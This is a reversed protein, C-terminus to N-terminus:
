REVAPPEMDNRNYLTGGETEGNIPFSCFLHTQQLQELHFSVLAYIPECSGQVTNPAPNADLPSPIDYSPYTKFRIKIYQIHIVKFIALQDLLFFTWHLSRSFAHKLSRKPRSPFPFQSHPLSSPPPLSPHPVHVGEVHATWYINRIHRHRPSSFACYARVSPAFPLVSRLIAYHLRGVWRPSTQPRYFCYTGKNTTSISNHCSTPGLAPFKWTFPLWADM